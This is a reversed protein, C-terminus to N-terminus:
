YVLNLYKNYQMEKQQGLRSFEYNLGATETIYSGNSKYPNCAAIPVIRPDFKVGEISHDVLIEKLM